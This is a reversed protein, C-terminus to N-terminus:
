EEITIGLSKLENKTGRILQILYDRCAEKLRQALIARSCDASDVVHYGYNDLGVEDYDLTSSVSARISFWSCNNIWTLEKRQKDLLNLLGIIKDKDSLKM